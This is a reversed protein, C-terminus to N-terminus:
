RMAQRAPAGPGSMGPQDEAAAQPLAPRLPTALAYRPDRRIAEEFLSVAKGLGEPTRRNWFHRGRLYLDHAELNETPAKAPARSPFLRPRLTAVISRALEGEVAFVDKLEREYSQSWLHYGNTADILQATLRLRTGDRRVSGELVTAVKLRAGIESVEAPKGKFAFASTRSAVQLGEVHALADILEETIGDSFYENAADGSMNVFPLVAISPASAAATQKAAGRVFFYWVLGPAASLVGIGVLLLALRAGRAGETQAPPTREIGGAKIDFVWALVVALPFGFALGVVVFTLTVEPLHLGHMVPEIVQLLAFSVIGYGIVARFVRRRQLEM